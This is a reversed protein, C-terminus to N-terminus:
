NAIEKYYLYPNPWWLPRGHPDAGMSRVDVCYTKAWNIDQEIREAVQYGAGYNEMPTSGPGKGLDCNYSDRYFVEEESVYLQRYIVGMNCGVYGIVKRSHNSCTINTPLESPQPTFLGGMENNLKAQVQYYEYEQRSLTRQQLRISYLVSLREDSNQITQITKGVMRNEVNSETTGLLIQDTARYCWGQAVPPYVYHIIRNTWPDFLDVTVLRTRVEWDEEFYWLFYAAQTGNGMETDLQISVPGDLNPQKFTLNEIGITELPKQPESRYTDGNYLIELHYEVDPRLTGIEVGYKGKGRWYGPWSTGDSGKVALEADVDLYSGFLDANDETIDLPLTKSLQFVVTSDSIINGEVVLGETIMEDFDADFKEICGMMLTIVLAGWISVITKNKM